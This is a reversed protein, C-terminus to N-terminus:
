SAPFKPPAVDFRSAIHGDSILIAAPARVSKRIMQEFTRDDIAHIYTMATVIPTTDIRFMEPEACLFLIHLVAYTLASVM